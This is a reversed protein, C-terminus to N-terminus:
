RAPRGTEAVPEPYRYRILVQPTDGREDRVTAIGRYLILRREGDLAVTLPHVLWSLLPNAAEVRVYFWSPDAAARPEMAAAGNPVAHMRLRVTSLRSPVAFDFSLVQGARLQDWHELIFHYFGSSVVLPPKYTVAKQKRESFLILATGIWRAGEAFDASPYNQTYTPSVFSNRSDLENVAWLSGNPLFYQVTHSSGQWRHKETYLLTDDDVSYAEGVAIGSETAHLLSAVVCFLFILGARVLGHM